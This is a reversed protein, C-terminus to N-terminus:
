PAFKQIRKNFVDAVYIYGEGDVAVSGAFNLGRAIVSRDGFDFEGPGSGPRGWQAIFKGEKDFVVIRANAADLVYMRGDLSGDMSIPYFLSGAGLDLHPGIANNTARDWQSATILNGWLVQDEDPLCVALRPRSEGQVQWVRIESVPSPFTGRLTAEGDFDVSYAQNGATLALRDGLAALGFWAVVEPLFDGAWLLNSEVSASFHGAEIGLDLHYATVSNSLFPEEFHESHPEVDLESPPNFVWDLVILSKNFDFSLVFRSFTDGGIQVSPSDAFLSVSVQLRLNRWTSDTAGIKRIAENQGGDRLVLWGNFGRHPNPTWGELIKEGSADDSSFLAFDEEFLANGETSVLVNDFKGTEFEGGDPFRELRIEGLVEGEVEDLPPIVGAFLERRQLLPQGDRGFHLIVPLQGNFAGISLFRRGDPAQAVANYRVDAFYASGALDMPLQEELLTGAADFLLLRVPESHHTILAAIRGDPEAYLRVFERSAFPEGVLDLPWTALFTHFSGSTPESFVEDDGTTLVAIQYIYETNGILNSDVFTTTASDAFTAIIRETDEESRRVQYAAFRPGRYPTWELTASSSHADFDTRLLRVAPFTVPDVVHPPTTVEFGSANVISLRYVYTTNQAVKADVYSTQDLDSIFALTDVKELGQVQRLVWYAAFAQDGAYRSWTLAATGATDDLAVQLTVPPTLQPDFPNSREADHCAPFLLLLASFASKIFPM